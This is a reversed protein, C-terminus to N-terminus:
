NQQGVIIVIDFDTDDELPDQQSVTYSDELAAVIADIVAQDVSEKAQIETDTYDYSDANGTEFTDFGAGELLGQVAGAEGATGSGNLVQVSVGSFDSSDEAEESEEDTEASDTAEETAEERIEESTEETSEEEPTPSQVQTSQWYFYGGVILAGVILASLFILFLKKVSPGSDDDEAFIAENESFPPPADTGAPVAPQAPMAQPSPQAPQAQPAASAPGVAAQDAPQAPMAQAPAAPITAQDAPQEPQASVQPTVQVVDPPMPQTASETQEPQTADVEAEAQPPETETVVAPKQPIQVEDAPSSSTTTVQTKATDEAAAEKTTKNSSKKTSKKTAM